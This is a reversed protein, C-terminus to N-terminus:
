EAAQAHSVQSTTEAAQQQLTTLGDLMTRTSIDALKGAESLYDQMASRTFNTQLDIAENFSKSQAMARSMEMGRDLRAKSFEMIENGLALWTEFLRNSAQLLPDLSPVGANGFITDSMKKEVNEVSRRLKTDDGKAM